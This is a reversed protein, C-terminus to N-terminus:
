LNLYNKKEFLVSVSSEHHINNIARAFLHSITVKQLIGAEKLISEKSKPLRVTDTLGITEICSNALKDVADRSLLAHTCFACVKSAGKEKVLKAAKVLSGGTDIIDDRIFAVKDKVDGIINLAESQNPEDRKKHIIALDAGLEDNSHQLRKVGGVDPSVVVIPGQKDILGMVFEDFVMDSLLHDVPIKFFGQIQAAHLDMTLIRDVGATELLNALLKSSIPVRPQEKRDQRAYGFYPIVATIRRASSRRAADVLFLLEMYNEAPPETSQIIYIDKGRINEQIQARIEGDAFRTLKREVPKTDLYECIRFGLPENANGIIIRM